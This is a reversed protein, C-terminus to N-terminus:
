PKATTSVKPSECNKDKCDVLEQLNGVCNNGGFQPAPNNCARERSKHGTGCTKSCAGFPGWNSFGGHIPCPRLHLCQQTEETAGKCNAGYFAPAPSDCKRTRKRKGDKCM